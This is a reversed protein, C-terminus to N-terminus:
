EDSEESWHEIAQLTPSSRAGISSCTYAACKSAFYMADPVPMKQLMYAYIFAGLYSDGAGTSDVVKATEAAANTRRGQKDFMVSGDKGLTVLLDGDFHGRLIRVCEELNETGTLNYLGERCPAFLDVYKLASLIDEKAIGLGIMTNLGVQMNFVTATGSQRAHKLAQIAPVGPVLDTYLVEASGIAGCNVEGVALALMADGLTLMIFKEGQRDVVIETYLSKKGPSTVVSATDVSESAFSELVTRGIEDDGLKCIFGCKAGLRALQVIVNACSGGPLHRSEHVICFGDALPLKDVIKIIDVAYTGLGIVDM